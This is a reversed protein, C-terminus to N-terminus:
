DLDIIFRTSEGTSEKYYRQFYTMTYGADEEILTENGDGDIEYRDCWYLGSGNYRKIEIYGDMTPITDNKGIRITKM